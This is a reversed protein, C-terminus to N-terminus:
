TLRNLLRLKIVYEDLDKVLIQARVEDEGGCISAEGACVCYKRM